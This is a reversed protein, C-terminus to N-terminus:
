VHSKAQEKTRIKGLREYHCSSQHVGTHSEQTTSVGMPLPRTQEKITM